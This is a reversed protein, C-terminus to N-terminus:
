KLSVGLRGCLYKYHALRLVARKVVRAKLERDELVVHLIANCALACGPMTRAGEWLTALEATATLFEEYEESTLQEEAKASLKNFPIAPNQFGAVGASGSIPVIKAIKSVLSAIDSTHSSLLFNVRDFQQISEATVRGATRLDDPAVEERQAALLEDLTPKAPEDDILAKTAGSAGEVDLGYEASLAEVRATARATIEERSERDDIKAAREKGMTRLEEDGWVDEENDASFSVGEEWGDHATTEAQDDAPEFPAEDDAPQDASFVTDEEDWSDQEIREAQDDVTEASTAEDIPHDANAVADEEFAKDEM